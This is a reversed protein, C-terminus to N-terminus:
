PGVPGHGSFRGASPRAMRTRRSWAAMAPRDRVRSVAPQVRGVRSLGAVGGVAEAGALAAVEEAGLVVWGWTVRDNLRGGVLLDAAGAVVALGLVAGAAGTNVPQIVVPALRAM